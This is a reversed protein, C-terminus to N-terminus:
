TKMKSIREQCQYGHLEILRLRENVKDESEKIKERAEILAEDFENLDKKKKDVATQERGGLAKHMNNLRGMLVNLKKM